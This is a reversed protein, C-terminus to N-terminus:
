IWGTSGGESGEVCVCPCHTGGMQQGPTVAQSMPCSSLIGPKSKTERRLVWCGSQKDATLERGGPNLSYSKTQM